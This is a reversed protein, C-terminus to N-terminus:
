RGPSYIHVLLLQKTSGTRPNSGSLRHPLADVIIMSDVGLSSRCMNMILALVCALVSVCHESRNPLLM